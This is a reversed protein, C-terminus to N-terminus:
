ILTEPTLSGQTMNLKDFQICNPQVCMYHESVLDHMISPRSKSAQTYQPHDTHLTARVWDLASSAPLSAVDDAVRV